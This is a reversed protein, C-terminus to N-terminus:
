SERIMNIDERNGKKLNKWVGYFKYLFLWWLYYKYSDLIYKSMIDQDNNFSLLSSQDEKHYIFADKVYKQRLGKCKCMLYLIPEECYLFTRRYFGKYYKFFNPTFLLACGHLIKEYCANQPNPVLLSWIVDNKDLYKKLYILLNDILSINCAIEKQVVNGKLRIEPGIVGVGKDYYKLLIDFFKEQEFVTDNNTVFIFDTGFKKRAINIGINNGKAFGYNNGNKVVIINKFDKYKKKLIGYSGNTSANDVVVIGAVNRYGMKLISEICEITDKYNLYNLIVISVRM